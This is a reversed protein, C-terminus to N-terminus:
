KMTGSRSPHACSSRILIPLYFKPASLHAGGHKVCPTEKPIRSHPSPFNEGSSVNAKSLRDGILEANAARSRKVKRPCPETKRSIDTTQEGEQRCVWSPSQRKACEWWLVDAGCQWRCSLREEALGLQSSRAAQVCRCVATLESSRERRKKSGCTASSMKRLTPREALLSGAKERLSMM